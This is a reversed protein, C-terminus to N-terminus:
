NQGPHEQAAPIDNTKPTSPLSAPTLPTNLIPVSNPPTLVSPVPAGSAIHAKLENETAGVPLSLATLLKVRNDHIKWWSWGLALLAVVAAEVYGEAASATWIGHKVLYTALIMLLYRLISGIASQLIPNM